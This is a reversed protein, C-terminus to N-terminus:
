PLTTFVIQTNPGIDVPAEARLEVAVTQGGKVAEPAFTVSAFGNGTTIAQQRQVNGVDLWVEANGNLGRLNVIAGALLYGTGPAVATVIVHNDPDGPLHQPEALVSSREYKPVPAM